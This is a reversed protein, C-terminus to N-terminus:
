KKQNELKLDGEGKKQVKKMRIGINIRMIIM